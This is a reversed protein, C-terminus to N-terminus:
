DQGEPVYIRRDIPVNDFAQVLGSPWCVELRDVEQAKGLGFEV